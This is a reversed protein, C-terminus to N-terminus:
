RIKINIIKAVKSQEPITCTTYIKDFLLSLPALLTARADYLACVPIRDFGECKKNSLDYLCSKVDDYKMFNRNAVIQQCKGNYVSSKVKSKQINTFVKSHFHEAFSNAFSGAAVSIGGLTFNSPIDAPCINKAVKVAKWINIKHGSAAQKVKSAKRSVFYDKIDKNMEYSM